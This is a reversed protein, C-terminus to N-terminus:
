NPKTDANLSDHFAVVARNYAASGQVSMGIIRLLERASHEQEALQARLTAIQNNRGECLLAWKKERRQVSRLMKRAFELEGADAHTYLKTGPELWPWIDAFPAIGAETSARMVGVPEGQHQLAPQLDCLAIDPATCQAADIAVMALDRDTMSPAVKLRTICATAAEVQRETWISREVLMYGEPVSVMETNSSRNETPM